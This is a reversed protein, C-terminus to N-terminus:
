SARSGGMLDGGVDVVIAVVAPAPLRRLLHRRREVGLAKDLANTELVPELESVRGPWRGGAVEITM